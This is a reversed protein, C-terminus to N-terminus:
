RKKLWSLPNVASNNEWIEFHLKPVDDIGADGVRGLTQGIQIQENKNVLVEGVNAYVTYYGGYHNLLILVGIGRMWQIRSVIGDAVAHVETGFKSKIDIGLSKTITKLQPHRYNGFKKLVKGQIPWIMRKKLEPFNSYEPLQEYTPGQQRKSEQDVILQEIQGLSAEVEQQYQHINKRIKVLIKKRQQRRKKLNKSEDQKLEILQQTEGWIKKLKVKQKAIIATKKQINKINRQDNENLLKQYKLWLYVQNFSKAKLLAEVERSGGYKYQHVLRKAYIIKLRKLEKETQNLNAETKQIESKGTQEKHELEKLLDRTLSMQHGIDNLLDLTASEKKEQETIKANLRNIQKSLQEKKSPQDGQAVASSLWLICFILQLYYTM